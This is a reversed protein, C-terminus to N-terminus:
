IKKTKPNPNSTQVLRHIRLKIRDKPETVEGGRRATHPRYHFRPLSALVLSPHQLCLKFNLLLIRLLPVLSGSLPRAEPETRVSGAKALFADDGEKIAQNSFLSNSIPNPCATLIFTTMPARIAGGHREWGVRDEQM